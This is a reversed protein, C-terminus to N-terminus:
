ILMALRTNLSPLTIPTSWDASLAAQDINVQSFNIEGLEGLWIVMLRDDDSVVVEPQEASGSPSTLVPLPSTWREGDWRTYFIATRSANTELPQSWFAHVRGQDDAVMKPSTARTANDSVLIPPSWEPPLSYWTAIEGISRSTQWIDVTQDDSGKGCGLAMIQNGGILSLQHCELSIPRYTESSDFSGLTEQLQPDSWRSGDWALLYSQGQYITSLFM